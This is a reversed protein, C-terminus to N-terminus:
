LRRYNTFVTRINRNFYSGKSDARSLQDYTDRPVDPYIYTTGNKFRIYLERTADDYGIAELNTSDVFQMDVM